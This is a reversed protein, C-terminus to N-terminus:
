RAPRESKRAMAVRMETVKVASFLLRWSLRFSSSPNNERRWAETGKEKEFAWLIYRVADAYSGQFEKEVFRSCAYSALTAQMGDRTEAPHGYVRDHLMEFLAVLHRPRAPGWDGTQGMKSAEAHAKAAEKPTRGRAKRPGKAKREERKKALTGEVMETLKRASDELDFSASTTVDVKTFDISTIPVFVEGRPSRRM